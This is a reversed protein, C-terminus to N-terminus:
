GDEAIETVTTVLRTPVAAILRVEFPPGVYFRLWDADTAMNEARVRWKSSGMGIEFTRMVTKEDM